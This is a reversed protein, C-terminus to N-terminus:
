GRHPSLSWDSDAAKTGPIERHNNVHTLFICLSVRQIESESRSSKVRILISRWDTDKKVKKGEEKRSKEKIRGV